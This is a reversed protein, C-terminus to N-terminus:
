DYTCCSPNFDGFSPCCICTFTPCDNYACDQGDYNICPTDKVCSSGSKTYGSNCSWDSCKSSCDSYYSSCSANSPVVIEARNHCNDSYCTQCKSSCDSYYASCGYTCSQSTYNECPDTVVATCGTNANGEYGSNCYCSGGSCYANSGCSVDECPDTVVATCGTNANGEYGSNCYCSGGSCYANSGCSVDECPDTELKDCEVSCYGNRYDGYCPGYDSGCSYPFHDSECYTSCRSSDASCVSGECYQWTGGCDYYGPCPDCETCSSYKATSGSYCTTAGSAAGCECTTYGSCSNEKCTVYASNYPCTTNPVYGTSCSTETYGAERCARTTDEKCSAYYAGNYPCPNGSPYAPLSCSTITYGENKCQAITDIDYNEDDSGKNYAIEGGCDGFGLFCIAATKYSNKLNAFSSAPEPIPTYTHTQTPFGNLPALTLDMAAVPMIFTSTLLASLSLCRSYSM